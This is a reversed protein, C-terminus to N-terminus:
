DHQNAGYRLIKLRVFRSTTGLKPRKDDLLRAYADNRPVESAHRRVSRRRSISPPQPVPLPPPSRGSTKSTRWATSCPASNRSSPKPTILGPGLPVMAKAKSDRRASDADPADPSGTRGRRGVSLRLGGAPGVVFGANRSRGLHSGIRRHAAQAVALRWFCRRRDGRRGDERAAAFASRKMQIARIAAARATAAM